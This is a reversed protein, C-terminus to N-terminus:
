TNKMAMCRVAAMAMHYAAELISFLSAAPVAADMRYVSATRRDPGLQLTLYMSGQGFYAYEKEGTYMLPTVPEGPQVLLDAAAKNVQVIIGQEVLFAPETLTDLYIINESTNEM